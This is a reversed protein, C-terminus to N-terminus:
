IKKWTPNADSLNIYELQYGEASRNGTANLQVRLRTNTSKPRIINENQGALWTAGTQSGDDARFRFANQVVTGTGVSATTGNVTIADFDVSNASTPCYVYIRFTLATTLDQYSSTGSLDISVSQFTTRQATFDATGVNTAYSDVSSRIAYGRPTSGGGRAGSFTLSTISYSIGSNPTLTFYFYSNNTVALAASTCGDQPNVQLVADTGYGLNGGAFLSLPAPGDNLLNSVTFNSDTTTPAVSGSTMNYQALTAM